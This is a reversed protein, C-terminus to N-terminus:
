STSYEIELVIGAELVWFKRGAGGQRTPPPSLRRRPRRGPRNACGRKVLVGVVRTSPTPPGQNRVYMMAASRATDKLIVRQPAKHAM